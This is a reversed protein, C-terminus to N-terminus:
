DGDHQSIIAEVALTKKPPPALSAQVLGRVDALERGSGSARIIGEGDIGVLLPTASARYAEMTARTSPNGIELKSNCFTDSIQLYRPPDSTLLLVRFESLEGLDAAAGLNEVLEECAPCTPDVFALLSPHGGGPVFHNWSDDSIRQYEFEAANEGVTPGFRGPAKNKSFIHGLHRYMIIVLLGLALLLVWQAVILYVPIRM